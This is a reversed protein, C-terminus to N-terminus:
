SRKSRLPSRWPEGRRAIPYPPGIPSPVEGNSPEAPRTPRVEPSEARNEKRFSAYIDLLIQRQRGTITVDARIAAQVDSDPERDEILGAQAYLAQASIHLGKAIQNLVEVGPKRIGREIHSLYPKSVGARVALRRPSIRAQQRQRRIYEGTSGVRPIVM